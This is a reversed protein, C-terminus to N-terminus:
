IATNSRVGRAPAHTMIHIKAQNRRSYFEPITKQEWTSVLAVLSRAMDLGRVVAYKMSAYDSFYTHHIEPVGPEQTTDTTAWYSPPRQFRVKLGNTSNYSPTPYLYLSTGILNYEAPVGKIATGANDYYASLSEGRAVFEKEDVEKLLTWNGSAADKVEVSLLQIHTTALNYGQTGDVLNATAIPVTTYDTDDWNWGLGKMALDAYRSYAENLFNTFIALLSANGTVHAYGNDGFCNIECNQLLGAKEVSTDSFDLAM